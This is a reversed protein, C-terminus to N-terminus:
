HSLRGAHSAARAQSPTVSFARRFAFTFHSHSSFGLDLAVDTLDAGPRLRELSGLLRLRNRYGTMTTGTLRRFAHCLYYVSLGVESALRALSVPAIPNRAISERVREVADRTRAPTVPEPSRRSSPRYRRTLAERLLQMAAEDAEQADLQGAHLAAFYRRQALYLKPDSPGIGERFPGTTRAAAEPDFASVAERVTADPFALWDCRDAGQAPWREYSQDQNYFTILSADVLRRRAGEHRIWVATRPFVITHGSCHGGRFLPHLPDCRFEGACADTSVHVLREVPLVQKLIRAALDPVRM